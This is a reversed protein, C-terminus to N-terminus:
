GRHGRGAHTGSGYWRRLALHCGGGTLTHLHGGVHQAQGEVAFAAREGMGFQALMGIQHVAALAEHQEVVAGLAHIDRLGPQDTSGEGGVFGHHVDRGACAFELIALVFQAHTELRGVEAADLQDLGPGHLPAGVVNGDLVFHDVGAGLGHRGLHIQLQHAVAVFRRAFRREIGGERARRHEGLFLFVLLHIELVDLLVLGIEHLCAAIAIHGHHLVVKGGGPQQGFAHRAFDEHALDIGIQIRDAHDGGEVANGRTGAPHQIRAQKDTRLDFGHHFLEGGPEIQDLVVAPQGDQGLRQIPQEVLQVLNQAVPAPGDHGQHQQELHSKVPEIGLGVGAHGLHLGDVGLDHLHALAEFVFRLLHLLLHHADVALLLDVGHATAEGDHDLYWYENREVPHQQGAHFHAVGGPNAPHM